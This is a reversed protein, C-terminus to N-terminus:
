KPSAGYAADQLFTMPPFIGLPLPLYTPLSPSRNISPTPKPQNRPLLHPTPPTTERQIRHFLSLPCSAHQLPHCLSEKRPFFFSTINHLHHLSGSACGHSLDFRILFLQSPSILYPIAYLSNVDFATFLTQVGINSESIKIGRDLSIVEAWSTVVGAYFRRDRIFRMMETDILRILRRDLRLKM